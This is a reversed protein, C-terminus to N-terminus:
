PSSSPSRTTGAESLASSVLSQLSQQIHPPVKQWSKALNLNMNVTAIDLLEEDISYRKHHHLWTLIEALHWLSPTGEYAPSPSTSEATVILNRVNQRSCGLIKAVDTFSVLDPTAELLLAQPLAQKVDNIASYLADFASHSSRIFHLSIRGLKGVGILADDCGAQALRDVYLEPNADRQQLAFKLTFDYEKM